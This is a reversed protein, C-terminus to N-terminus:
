SAPPPVGWRRRVFRFAVVTLAVDVAARVIMPVLGFVVISISTSLFSDGPIASPLAFSVISSVVTNALSLIVGFAVGVIVCRRVVPVSRVELLGVALGVLAAAAINLLIGPFYPALPALPAPWLSILFFIMASVVSFLAGIVIGFAAGVLAGVLARKWHRTRNGAAAGAVIAVLVGLFVWVLTSPLFAVLPM